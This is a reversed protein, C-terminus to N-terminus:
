GLFFINEFYNFDIKAILILLEEMLKWTFIINIKILYVSHSMLNTHVHKIKKMAKNVFKTITEKFGFKSVPMNIDKLLQQLEQYLIKIM